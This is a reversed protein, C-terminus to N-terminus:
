FCLEKHYDPIPLMILYPMKGNNISDQMPLGHPPIATLFDTLGLQLRWFLIPVPKISLLTQGDAAMISSTCDGDPCIQIIREKEMIERAKNKQGDNLEINAALQKAIRPANELMQNLLDEPLYAYSKYEATM